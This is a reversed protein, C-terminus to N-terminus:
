YRWMRVRVAVYFDLASKPAFVTIDSATLSSYYFTEGLGKNEMAASGFGSVKYQLDVLYHDINGGLGHVLTKSYTAPGPTYPTNIWGSDYAPTAGAGIVAAASGSGAAARTQRSGDPFVLASGARAIKLDGAFEGAAGDPGGVAYVGIGKGGDAQFHGGYNVADARSEAWGYVGIGQRGAACFHGGYNQVNGTNSAWGKIAMGKSGATQGFLGRGHPGAAYFFGGYTSAGGATSKSRAYMGRGEAGASQFWGGYSKGAGTYTNNVRFARGPESISGVYALTLSTDVVPAVFYGRINRIVGSDDRGGGISLYNTECLSPNPITRPVQTSTIASLNRTTSLDFQLAFYTDHPLAPGATQEVEIYDYNEDFGDRGSSNNYVACTWYDTSRWTYNGVTVTFRQATGTFKYDASGPGTDEPATATDFTYSGTFEDGVAVSGDLADAATVRDVIGQFHVTYLAARTTPALGFVVGAFGLFFMLQIRKDMEM